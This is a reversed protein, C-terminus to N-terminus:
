STKVADGLVPHFKLAALEARIQSVVMEPADHEWFRLVHWGARTLLSDNARDRQVNGDLKTAWWEANLTPRTAHVPCGHWFCGDIFVALRAAPFLIDVECRVGAM